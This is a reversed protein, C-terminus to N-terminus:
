TGMIRRVKEQYEAETLLGANRLENLSILMRQTADFRSTDEMEAQVQAQPQPPPSSYLPMPPPAPQQYTPAPHAPAAQVPAPQLAPVVPQQPSPPTYRGDFEAKADILAQKFEFPQNIWLLDNVSHASGTLIFIDGFDFLRGLMPQKMEVDNIRGLSSDLSRKSIIGEVQIIRYNTIVYIENRWRLFRIVFVVGPVFSALFLLVALIGSFSTIERYAVIIAAVWLAVTLFAMLAAKRLVWLVHRHAKRRIHEHDALQRELYSAM